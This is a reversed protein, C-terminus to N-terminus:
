EKIIKEENKGGNVTCNVIRLELDSNLCAVMKKAKKNFRSHTLSNHVFWGYSFKHAAIDDLTKSGTITWQMFKHHFTLKQKSGFPTTTVISDGTCIDLSKFKHVYPVYYWESNIKVYLCGDYLAVSQYGLDCEPRKGMFNFVWKLEDSADELDSFRYIRQKGAPRTVVLNDGDKLLSYICGDTDKVRAIHRTDSLIVLETLNGEIPAKVWHSVRNIYLANNIIMLEDVIWVNDANFMINLM